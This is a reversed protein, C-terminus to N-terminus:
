DPIRDSTAVLVGGPMGPATGFVTPVPMPFAQYLRIYDLSVMLGGNALAGANRVNAIGDAVGDAADLTPNVGIFASVIETEVTFRADGQGNAAFQGLFSVPIAGPTASQGLFATYLMGPTMGSCNLRMVDPGMPDNSIRAVCTINPEIGGPPAFVNVESKDDALAPAALVLFALAIRKM